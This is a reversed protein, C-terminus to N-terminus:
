GQEILQRQILESTLLKHIELTYNGRGNVHSTVIDEVYRANLYPRALTRPDLLVDRVYPALENRYWIRFHYFKQRGLFLRELHFPSLLRDVNTFWQPMGYDYAYEARPMFEQCFLKFRNAYAGPRSVVGRDTPITALASNCEAIFRFSLEKNVGIDFPAQYALAVLENDLYPSRVTIQSQEVALRAYHYWPVQKSVIFDTRSISKESAFTTEATKLFPIFKQDFMLHSLSGTKFVLNGRLVESGYNGTMRVPAVERALRNAFLEVAGTVDMAGDTYYVSRESLNPFESFFNSTISITEHRQRSTKAIQKSLRVDACERYMGGFTYCPLSGPPPAASAIIMRSDLGGTLSLAVRQKGQFYRPLIRTFTDRLREYYESVPLQVQNAWVENKFYCEKTVMQQPRFTWVSAAPLLSIGSFLSRNQLASGCSFFEGFSRIDLNRLQPLVKLLAKAESAFYFESANEHYYIRGLGFRDNFLVIKNERLDALVGSFCGNLRKLFGDGMEEYSHPLYDANGSGFKHGKARLDDIDTQDAFNEGAFGLYVDRKESCVPMCDSFTGEQCVWSLSLGLQKNVYMGNKYFPEHMMCRVMMDLSSTDDSHGNKHIIGVIGPM